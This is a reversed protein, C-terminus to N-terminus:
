RRGYGRATNEGAAHIRYGDGGGDAPLVSAPTSHQKREVFSRHRHAQTRHGVCHAASRCGALERTMSLYPDLKSPTALVRKGMREGLEEQSARIDALLEAYRRSSGSIKAWDSPVTTVAKPATRSCEPGKTGTVTFAAM